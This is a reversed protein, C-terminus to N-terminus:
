TAVWGPSVVLPAYQSSQLMLVGLALPRSWASAVRSQSSVSRMTARRQPALTGENGHQMTPSQAVLGQRMGAQGAAGAARVGPDGKVQTLGSESALRDGIFLCLLGEGLM